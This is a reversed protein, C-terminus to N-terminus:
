KKKTKSKRPRKKKTPTIKMFEEVIREFRVKGIKIQKEGDNM